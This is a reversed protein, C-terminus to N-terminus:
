AAPMEVQDEGPYHQDTISKGKNQGKTITLNLAWCGGPARFLRSKEKRTVRAHGDPDSVCVIDGVVLDKISKMKM